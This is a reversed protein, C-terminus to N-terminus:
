KPLIHTGSPIDTNKLDSVASTPQKQCLNSYQKLFTTLFVWSEEQEKLPRLLGQLGSPPLSADDGPVTRLISTRPFPIEPRRLDIFDAHLTIPERTM